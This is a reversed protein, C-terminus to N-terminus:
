NTIDASGSFRSGLYLNFSFVELSCRIITVSKPHTPEGSIRILKLLASSLVCMVEEGSEGAVFLILIQSETVSSKCNPVM